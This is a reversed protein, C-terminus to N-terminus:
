SMSQVRDVGGCGGAPFTESVGGPMAPKRMAANGDYGISRSEALTRGESYVIKFILRYTADIRNM